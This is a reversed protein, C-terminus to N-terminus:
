FLLSLMFYAILCDWFGWPLMLMNYIYNKDMKYSM